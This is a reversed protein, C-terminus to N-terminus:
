LIKKKMKIIITYSIWHTDNKKLEWCIKYKTQREITQDDHFSRWLRDYEVEQWNGVWIMSMFANEGLRNKKRRMKLESSSRREICKLEIYYKKHCVFYVKSIMKLQICYMFKAFTAFCTQKGDLFQYILFLEKSCRMVIYIFEKVGTM